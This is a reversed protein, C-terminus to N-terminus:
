SRADAYLCKTATSPWPLCDGTQSHAITRSPSSVGNKGLYIVKAMFVENLIVLSVWSATIKNQRHWWLKDVINQRKRTSLQM